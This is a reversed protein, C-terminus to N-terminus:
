RSRGAGCASVGKLESPFTQGSVRPRALGVTFKSREMLLEKDVLM